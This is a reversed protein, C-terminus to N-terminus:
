LADPIRGFYAELVRKEGFIRVAAELVQIKLDIDEILARVKERDEDTMEMKEAM